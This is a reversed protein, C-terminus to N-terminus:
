KNQWLMSQGISAGAYRFFQDQPYLSQHSGLNSQIGRKQDMMAVRSTCTMRITCTGAGQRPDPYDEEVTWGGNMYGAFLEVPSAIVQYTTMDLYARWVFVSQGVYGQSLLANIVTTDVGSVNVTLASSSLDGSEALGDYSLLGGLAAFPTGNWTIPVGANTLNLTGGTFNFTFLLVAVGQPAEMAAKVATTLNRPM